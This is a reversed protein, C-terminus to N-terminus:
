GVRGNGGIELIFRSDNMIYRADDDYMLVLLIEQQSVFLLYKADFHNSYM